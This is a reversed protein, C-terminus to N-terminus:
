LYTVSATVESRMKQLAKEQKEKMSKIQSQKRVEDMKKLAALHVPDM